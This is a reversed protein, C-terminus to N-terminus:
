PKRCLLVTGTERGLAELLDAFTQEGEGVVAFDVAPHRLVWDNDPTVEPGGIVIRLGPQAQKLREAIWLSREVNWVYCTFGVMWPGRSLIEKVLGQDGLTNAVAPALLDIQYGAAELGRRRAFLKLYAAALPVNHQVPEPGAPPIPLQLLLVNRRRSDM